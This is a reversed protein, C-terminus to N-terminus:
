AHFEWLLELCEADPRDVVVACVLAPHPGYQRQQDSVQQADNRGANEHEDGAAQRAEAVLLHLSVFLLGGIMDHDIDEAHQDAEGEKGDCDGNRRVQEEAERQFLGFRQANGRELAEGDEHPDPEEARPKTRAHALEAV